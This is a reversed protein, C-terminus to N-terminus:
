WFMVCSAIMSSLSGVIRETPSKHNSVKNNFRQSPTTHPNVSYKDYELYNIIQDAYRPHYFLAFINSEYGQGRLFNRIELAENGIADGYSYSTLFQHVRM